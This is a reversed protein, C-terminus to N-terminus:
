DELAKEAPPRMSVATRRGETRRIVSRELRVCEEKGEWPVALLRPGLEAVTSLM